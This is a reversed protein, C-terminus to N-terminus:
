CVSKDFSCFRNLTRKHTLMLFTHVKHLRNLLFVKMFVFLKTFINGFQPSIREINFCVNRMELCCLIHFIYYIAISMQFKCVCVCVEGGLKWIFEQRNFNSLIKWFLWSQGFFTSCNEKIVRLIHILANIAPSPPDILFFRM